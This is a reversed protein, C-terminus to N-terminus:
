IRKEQDTATGFKENLLKEIDAKRYFFKNGVPSCRLTGNRRWTHMTRPSVKLIRIVESSNIWQGLEDEPKEFPIAKILETLQNIGKIVQEQLYAEANGTEKRSQQEAFEYNRLYDTLNDGNKMESPQSGQESTKM